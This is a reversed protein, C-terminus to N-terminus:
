PRPTGATRHEHPVRRFAQTLMEHAVQEVSQCDRGPGPDPMLRRASSVSRPRAAAQDFDWPHFVESHNNRLDCPSTRFWANEPAVLNKDGSVLYERAVAVCAAVLFLAGFIWYSPALWALFIGVAVMGCIALVVSRTLGM